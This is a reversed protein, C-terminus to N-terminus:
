QQKDLSLHYISLLTKVADINDTHNKIFNAFNENIKLYEKAMVVFALAIHELKDREDVECPYILLIYQNLLNIAVEEVSPDKGYQHINNILQRYKKNAFPPTAHSPNIQYTKQKKQISYNGDVKKSILLLLALTKTDDSVDDRILLKKLSSLYPAIELPKLYYITAIIKQNDKEKLFIKNAEEESIFPARTEDMKQYDAIKHPIARLFEEVKQSVYPKDEYKKLVLLAEDYKKEHLLLEFHLQMCKLPDKQYLLDNHITVLNIAEKFRNLAILANLRYSVAVVDVSGETVNIILQYQKKEFLAALNDM